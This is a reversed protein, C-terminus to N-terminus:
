RFFGWWLCPFFLFVVSFCPWSASPLGLWGGVGVLPSLGGALLPPLVLPFFVFSLAVWVPPLPLLPGPVLGLGVFVAALAPPRCCVLPAPPLRSFAGCVVPPLLLSVPWRGVFLPLVVLGLPVLPSLFSVPLPSCVVPWGMRGVPAVWRCQRGWRSLVPWGVCPRLLAPCCPVPVRFVLSPFVLLWPLFLVCLALGGFGSVSVM